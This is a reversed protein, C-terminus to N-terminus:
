PWPLRKWRPQIKRRGKKAEVEEMAETDEREERGKIDEMVEDREMDGKEEM